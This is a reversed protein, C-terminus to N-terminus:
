SIGSMKYVRRFNGGLIGNIADAAYGHELMIQVLEVLQEPQFCGGEYLQTGTPDPWSSDKAAVISAWVGAMDQVYDTGLGVHQPGVLSAIHDIHRFVTESRAEADGIFAGIGVVGIVGGGAACARIQADDINRIHACLRKAGSHSFITPLSSLEIAELSSRRGTHSCDVVMGIRNMERIVQRGFLSLGADSPEACGDAVFNRINYALLMHRVGLHFLAEISSLDSGLQVTDQVNFGLALQGNSRAADLEALSTAVTLWEAHPAISDKVKRIHADVGDFTPPFDEVTLSVFDFGARHYRALIDIDQYDTLWPLTMEWVESGSIMAKAKDTISM